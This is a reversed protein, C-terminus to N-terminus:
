VCAIGEHTGASGSEFGCVYIKKARCKEIFDKLTQQQEENEQDAHTRYVIALGKEKDFSYRM